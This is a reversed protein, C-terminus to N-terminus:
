YCEIEGIDDIIDSLSKGDFFPNTMVEDVSYVLEEKDKCFLLYSRQKTDFNYYPDIHYEKNNYKFVLMYAGMKVLDSMQQANEIRM